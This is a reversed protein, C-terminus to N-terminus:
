SLLLLFCLFAVRDANIVRCDCTIDLFKINSIFFKGFPLVDAVTRAACTKGM